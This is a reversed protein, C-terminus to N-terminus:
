GTKRWHTLDALENVIEELRQCRMWDAECESDGRYKLMASRINAAHIEDIERQLETVRKRIDESSLM